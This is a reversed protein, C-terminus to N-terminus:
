LYNESIKIDNDSTRNQGMDMDSNIPINKIIPEKKQFKNNIEPKSIFGRKNFNFKPFRLRHVINLSLLFIIIGIISLLYSWYKNEHFLYLYEAIVGWESIPEIIDLEIKFYIITQPILVLSFCFIFLKIFFYKSSKNFFLQLSIVFFLLVLGYSLLGFTYLIFSSLYAGFFGLINKTQESSSTLFSSDNIDITLLSLFILIAVIIFFFSLLYNFFISLKDKFIKPIYNNQMKM